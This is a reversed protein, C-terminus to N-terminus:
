ELHNKENLINILIDLKDIIDRLQRPLVVAITFLSIVALILLGIYIM